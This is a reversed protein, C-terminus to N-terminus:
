IHYMGSAARRRRRTVRALDALTKSHLVREIAEKIRGWTERSPCVDHMPCSGDSELCDVPATSGELLSYVEALVIQEAPRALIYGGTPGRVSEVIGAERLPIMIQELYKSSIDQRQAIRRVSLPCGPPALALEVLARTGYTTRTSLKM